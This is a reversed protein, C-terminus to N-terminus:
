SFFMAVVADEEQIKLIRIALPLDLLQDTCLEKIQSNIIRSNIQYLLIIGNMPILLKKAKSELHNIEETLDKMTEGILDKTTEGTMGKAVGKRQKKITVKIRGKLLSTIKKKVVVLIISEEIGIM